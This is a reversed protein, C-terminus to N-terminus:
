WKYRNLQENIFVDRKKIVDPCKYGDVYMGKYAEKCEYGLRFKLWRQATSKVIKGDIQLAPLIIDNVHHYLTRPSVTSLSQVALYMHVDHLVSENNLLM